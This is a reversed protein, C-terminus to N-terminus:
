PLPRLQAPRPSFARHNAVDNAAFALIAEALRAKSPLDTM